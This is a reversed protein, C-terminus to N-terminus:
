SLTLARDGFKASLSVIAEGVVCGYAPGAATSFSALKM